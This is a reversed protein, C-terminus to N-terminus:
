RAVIHFIECQVILSKHLLPLSRFVYIVNQTHVVRTSHSIGVHDTIDRITYVVARRLVENSAICYSGGERYREATNANYPRLLQVTTIRFLPYLVM